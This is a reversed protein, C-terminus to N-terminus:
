HIRDSINKWSNKPRQTVTSVETLFRAISTTAGKILFLRVYDTDKGKRAELFTIFGAKKLSSKVSFLYKLSSFESQIQSQLQVSPFIFQSDM